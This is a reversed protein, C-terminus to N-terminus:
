TGDLDFLLLDVIDANPLPHLPPHTSAFSVAGRGGGASEANM